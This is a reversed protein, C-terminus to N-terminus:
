LKCPCLIREMKHSPARWVWQEVFFAELHPFEQWPDQGQISEATSACGINGSHTKWQFSSIFLYPASSEQCPCPTADHAVMVMWRVTQNQNGIVRGLPKLVLQYSGTHNKNQAVFKDTVVYHKGARKLAHIYSSRLSPVEMLGYITHCFATLAKYRPQTTWLASWSAPHQLSTTPNSLAESNGIKCHGHSSLSTKLHHNMAGLTAMPIWLPFALMHPPLAKWHLLQMPDQLCTHWNRCILHVKQM